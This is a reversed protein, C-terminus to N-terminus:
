GGRSGTFERGGGRGGEIKGTMEDAAFTGSFSQSMSNEGFTMTITFSFSAGDVQGESIEITQSGAGGGGGGGGRGRGGMAMTVSGTLEAGTQVLDLTMNQPGRQGQVTLQWTGTLTQASAPAATIALAAAVAFFATRPNM